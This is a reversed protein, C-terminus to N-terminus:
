GSSSSTNFSIAPFIESSSICFIFARTSISWSLGSSTARSKKISFPNILSYISIKSLSSIKLYDRKKSNLRLPIFVLRLPIFGLHFPIFCLRLPIFQLRLPIFCLRLLIFQLRLRIFGLRLRIHCCLVPVDRSHLHAQKIMVYLETVRRTTTKFIAM